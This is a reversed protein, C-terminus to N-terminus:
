YTLEPPTYNIPVAVETTVYGAFIGTGNQINSFVSVIDSTLISGSNIDQKTASRRHKDYESSPSTIRMMYQEAIGGKLILDGDSDPTATVSTSIGNYTRNISGPALYFVYMSFSFPLALSLVQRQIRIFGREYLINSEKLDVDGTNDGVANVQDLYPCSSHLDGFAGPRTIYGNSYKVYGTIWAAPVEGPLVIDSIDAAIYKLGNNAHYEVYRGQEDYYYRTGVDEKERISYSVGAPQPISTTATLEPEGNVMVSLRYSKGVSPYVDSCLVGNVTTGSVILVGDEEVQVLAGDIYEILSSAWTEARLAVNAEANAPRNWSVTVKIVSDPCILSEVVIKRKYEDTDFNYVGECGFLALAIVSLLLFRNM